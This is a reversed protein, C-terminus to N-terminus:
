SVREELDILNMMWNLPWAREMSSHSMLLIIISLTLLCSGYEEIEGLRLAM